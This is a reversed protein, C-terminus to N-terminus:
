NRGNYLSRPRGEGNEVRIYKDIECLGFQVCHLDYAEGPMPMFSSDFDKHFREYIYKMEGLAQAEPVKQALPRDFLRNLGRAAGPGVPSWTYRDTCNELVPTRMADQLTEKAMFGSGGFGPLKMLERCTKEWSRTEVAIKALVKSKEWLHKMFINMVVEEKPLAIGQNTIIYAGTFVKEGRIMRDRAEKIVFDPMYSPMWGVSRAFSITGFYRFFGCNYLQLHLPQERNPGTWHDRMWRTTRDHERLVNTFKYNQLIPDKTWPKPKEAEKQLRIKERMHLYYVFKQYLRENLVSTMFAEV